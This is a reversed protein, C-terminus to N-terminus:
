ADPGWQGSCNDCQEYRDGVEAGNRVWPREGLAEFDSPRYPEEDSVEVWSTGVLTSGGSQIRWANSLLADKCERCLIWGTKRDEYWRMPREAEPRSRRPKRPPKATYEAYMKAQMRRAQISRRMQDPTRSVEVFTLTAHGGAKKEARKWMDWAALETWAVGLRHGTTTDIAIHAKM